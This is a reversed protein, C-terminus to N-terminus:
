WVADRGLILNIKPLLAPFDRCDVLLKEREKMQDTKLPGFQIAGTNERVHEETRFGPISITQPRRAWLWAPAGQTVIRAKSTLIERVAERLASWDPKPRGGSFYKMWESSKEGRVDDAALRSLTRQQAHSHRNACDNWDPPGNAERAPHTCSSDIISLSCALVLIMLVSLLALRHKM